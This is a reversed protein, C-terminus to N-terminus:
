MTIDFFIKDACHHAFFATHRDFDGIVLLRVARSLFAGDDPAKKKHEAAATFMAKGRAISRLPEVTERGGTGVARRCGRSKTRLRGRAVGGKTRLNMM